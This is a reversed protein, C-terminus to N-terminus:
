ERETDKLKRLKAEDENSFLHVFVAEPGGHERVAQRPTRDFPVGIYDHTPITGPANRYYAFSM